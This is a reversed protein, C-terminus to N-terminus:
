FPSTKAYPETPEVYRLTETRTMTGSTAQLITAYLREGAAKISEQGERASATAVNNAWQMILTDKTPM